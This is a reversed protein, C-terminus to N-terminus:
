FYIIFQQSKLINGAPQPPMDQLLCVPARLQACEWRNPRTLSAGVGSDSRERMEMDEGETLSAGSTDVDSGSLAPEKEVPGGAQLEPKDRAPGSAELEPCMVQSWAEVRQREGNVHSLVEDLNDFAPNLPCAEPVNDYVSHRSGVSGCSGGGRVSLNETRWWLLRQDHGPCLSELSLAKPFTGPKHNAPIRVLQEEDSQDDWGLGCSAAELKCDELYRSSTLGKRLGATLSPAPSDGAEWSQPEGNVSPPPRPGQGPLVKHLVTSHTPETGGQAAKVKTQPSRWRLSDIHRLFSKTRHKRPKAVSNPTTKVAVCPDRLTQTSLVMSGAPLRSWRKSERQFEWRDSIAFPEDEESGDGLKRTIDIDLKMSTIQNLTTLRRCLSQVYDQDLFNHDNKVANIDIPFQSDEHLQAYQPFGAERLWICLEQAELEVTRRRNMKTLRWRLSKFSFSAARRSMRPPESGDM